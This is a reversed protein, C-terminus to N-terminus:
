WGRAGGVKHSDLLLYKPVTGFQGKGRGQSKKQSHHSIAVELMSPVFRSLRPQFHLYVFRAKQGQSRSAIQSSVTKKQQQLLNAPFAKETMWRIKIGRSRSIPLLKSLEEIVPFSFKSRKVKQFIKKQKYSFM